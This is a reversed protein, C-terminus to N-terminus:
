ADDRVIHRAGKAHHFRIKAEVGTQLRTSVRSRGTKGSGIELPVAAVVAPFQAFSNPPEIL